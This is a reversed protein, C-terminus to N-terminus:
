APGGGAGDLEARLAAIEGRLRALAGDPGDRMLEEYAIPRGFALAIPRRLRPLRRGRPWAEFCGKVAVPLVPCRARKVLLAAGRKFEQMQGDPSRSGEPFILVPSGEGLRRATERIAAADGTDERLPIANLRRIVWGLVGTSFLGARAVFSLRRRPMFAGILPPDLYSEHNAAVLFAGGTPVRDPHLTRAGFAVRLLQRAIWAVLDFFWGGPDPGPPPATPPAPSDADAPM